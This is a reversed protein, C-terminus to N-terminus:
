GDSKDEAVPDAKMLPDVAKTYAGNLWRYILSREGVNFLSGPQRLVDIRGEDIAKVKEAMRTALLPLEGEIGGSELWSERYGGDGRLWPFNSDATLGGVLGRNIVAMKRDALEALQSKGALRSSAEDPGIMWAVLVEYGLEQAGPVIIDANADLSKAANAPTNIVVLDANGQEIKDFLDAVSNEAEGGSADLNVGEVQVGDVNQYRIGVDGIRLDGEIVLVNKGEDLAREIVVFSMTSKGVGGKDGHTVVLQKKKSAKKM